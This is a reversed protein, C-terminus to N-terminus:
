GLAEVRADISYVAGGTYTGTTTFTINQSAAAKVVVDGQSFANLTGLDHQIFPALAGSLFPVDVTQAAGDNWAVTVKVQAVAPTGATTTKLYFSVRYLGASSATGTVLTVAALNAGQGTLASRGLVGAAAATNGVMVLSGSFDFAKATRTNAATIGSVDLGLLKSSAITANDDTFLVATKIRGTAYVGRLNWASQTTSAIGSTIDLLDATQATSGLISQRVVGNDSDTRGVTFAASLAMGTSRVGVLAASDMRLGETGSSNAGLIVNPTQSTLWASGIRLQSGASSTNSLVHTGWNVAIWLQSYDACATKDVATLTYTLTHWLGDATVDPSGVNAVTIATDIDAGMMLLVSM